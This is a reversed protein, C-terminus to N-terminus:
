SLEIGAAAIVYTYIFCIQIVRFMFTARVEINAGGVVRRWVEATLSDQSRFYTQQKRCQLENIIM